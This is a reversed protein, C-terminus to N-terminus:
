EELPRGRQGVRSFYSRVQAQTFVLQGGYNRLILDMVFNFYESDSPTEQKVPLIYHHVLEALTVGDLKGASRTGQHVYKSVTPEARGTARAVEAQTMLPLMTQRAPLTALRKSGKKM